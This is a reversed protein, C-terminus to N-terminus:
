PQTRESSERVTMSAVNMHPTEELQQVLEDFTRISTHVESANACQSLPLCDCVRFSRVQHLLIEKM